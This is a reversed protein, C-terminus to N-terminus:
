VKEFNYGYCEKDGEDIIWLVFREVGVFRFTRFNFRLTCFVYFSVYWRFAKEVEM